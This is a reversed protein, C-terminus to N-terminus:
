SPDESKNLHINFGLEQKSVINSILSAMCHNCFSVKYGRSRRHHVVLHFCSHCLMMSPSPAVYMNYAIGSSIVTKPNRLPLQLNTKARHTITFSAFTQKLYSKIQFIIHDILAHLPPFCPHLLPTFCPPSSSAPLCPRLLSALIFCPPISSHLSIFIIIQQFSHSCSNRWKLLWLTFLTLRASIIWALRAPCSEPLVHSPSPHRECTHNAKLDFSLPSFPKKFCSCANSTNCAGIHWPDSLPGNYSCGGGPPVCIRQAVCRQLYWLWRSSWLEGIFIIPKRNLELKGRRHQKWTTWAWVPSVAIFVPAM